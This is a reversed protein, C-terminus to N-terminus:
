TIKLVEGFPANTQNTSLWLVPYRPEEGFSSCELDTFYVLCDPEIQHDELYQFAPAFNTGGRGHMTIATIPYDDSTFLTCEHVETDIELVYIADPQLEDIIANLDALSQELADVDMSLSTDIAYVLTGLKESRLSPLYLGSSIFRKNPTVWSYDNSAVSTLFRKLAERPDILPTKLSEVTQLLSGALEGHRKSINAAQITAVQWDRAMQQQQAAPIPLKLGGTTPAQFTGCGGINTPKGPKGNPDNGPNNGPNTGPKNVPPKKGKGLKVYIEEAALNAYQRDVLGDPPLELGSDLIPLNIAYDGAENFQQFDRAGLRMPHGLACHMVEHAILGMRQAHTLKLVFSPAYFLSVGDVAATEVSEDAILKLRLALTGFFPHLLLLAVRAKLMLQSADYATMTEERRKLTVLRTGLTEPTRLLSFCWSVGGSVPHRKITNRPEGALWLSAM